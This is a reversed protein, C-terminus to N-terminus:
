TPSIERYRAEVLQMLGYAVLGIGAVALVLWGFSWHRLTSLSTGFGRAQNPDLTIAAFILYAGIVAFVIARSATGFRGLVSAVLRFTGRVRGDLKELQDDSWARYLEHLAFVVVAAGLFGVLLTGLWHASMVTWALDKTDDGSPEAEGILLQTSFVVLGVHFVGRALFSVRQGLPFKARRVEHEPDLTGQILRWAAHGALGVIMAALLVSGFSMGHMERLAGESGVTKGDSSGFAALFSLSGTMAYLLGNAVYGLRAWKEIWPSAARGGRRVALGIDPTPLATSM